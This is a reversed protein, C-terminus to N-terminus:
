ASVLDSRAPEAGPILSPAADRAPSELRTVAVSGFTLDTRGVLACPMLELDRVRVRPTGVVEAPAAKEFAAEYQQEENIDDRESM